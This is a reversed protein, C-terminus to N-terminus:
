FEIGLQVTFVDSEDKNKFSAHLYEAALNTNDFFAYSVVGGYREDPLFDNGLDDGGEYRVALELAEVPLFAFEINWTMPKFAQGNDFSLEGAQFDDTAGVYELEVFYRDQFGLSLFVGLGPVDDKVTGAGTIEGELGNSDGINSIYSVGFALDFEESIEPTLTIGAVFDDIHNDKGTEDVDGNFASLCVEAWSHVYGVKLAGENTEGIELTLPDSIFHSEFRGFPVYMKGANLYLPIVDEGDLIIFGEDVNVSSDGDEWKFLLHGGVHKAIDADIGLEVTALTIDSSDTDPTGSDSFDTHEYNAEVEILGSLTIREAWTGLLPHEDSKKELRQVRDELGKVGISSGKHHDGKKGPKESMGQLKAELLELRKQTAKLEQMLEQNSMEGAFVPFSFLLGGVFLCLM